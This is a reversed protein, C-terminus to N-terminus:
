LQDELSKLIVDPCDSYVADVGFSFLEKARAPDNVTYCFVLRKNKKFLQVRDPTVIEENIDISVCNIEECYKKWDPIWQHMLFGIDVTASLARVKQLVPWSFSSILPPLMDDTWYEEIIAMVKETTITEHGPIAKIEVNAGMQHKRLFAIVDILLPIKEQSFAPNFWSGADLKKLAAYPFDIVAGTGNTTRELKEDHIIVVQQDASLMVDFEVWTLDLDYAKRFAALTNEPAYLNAGRHAFIPPYITLM